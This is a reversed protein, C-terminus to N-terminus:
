LGINIKNAAVTKKEDIVNAYIQTTKLHRHGLLKSVTFIDTGLTLQLTAYTHRACHFTIHKEIGAKIMWRYLDANRSDSYILDPFVPETPKGKEGLLNYAEDSIPL